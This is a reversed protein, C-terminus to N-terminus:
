VKVVGLVELVKKGVFEIDGEIRGICQSGGKKNHWKTLITKNKILILTASHINERQKQLQM